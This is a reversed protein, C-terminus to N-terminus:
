DGSRFRTSELEGLKRQLVRVRWKFGISVDRFALLREPCLRRRLQGRQRDSAHEGDARKVPLHSRVLFNRKRNANSSTHTNGDSVSVSVSVSDADSVSDALPDTDADPYTDPDSDPNPEAICDSDANSVCDAVGVAVTLGAATIGDRDHGDRLRLAM